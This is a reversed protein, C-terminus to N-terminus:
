PWCRVIHPRVLRAALRDIRIREVRELGGPPFPAGVAVVAEEPRDRRAHRLLQEVRRLDITAPADEVHRASRAIDSGGTGHAAGVDDTDVDGGLHHREGAPEARLDVEPLGVGLPQWEGVAGEVRDEGVEEDEV